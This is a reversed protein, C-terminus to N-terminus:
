PEVEEFTKDGGLLVISGAGEMAVPRALREVGGTGPRQEGINVTIGPGAGGGRHHARGQRGNGDRAVIRRIRVTL